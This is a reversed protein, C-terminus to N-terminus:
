RHILQSAEKMAVSNWTTRNITRFLLIKRNSSLMKLLL